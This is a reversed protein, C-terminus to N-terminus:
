EQEQKDDWNGYEVSFHRIEDRRIMNEGTRHRLVYYPKGSESFFWVYFDRFAGTAGRKDRPSRTNSWGLTRDKCVVSIKAMREPPEKKVIKEGPLPLTSELQPNPLISDSIINGEEKKKFFNLMKNILSMNIRLVRTGIIPPLRSEFEGM